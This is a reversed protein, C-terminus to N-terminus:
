YNPRNRFSGVNLGNKMATSLLDIAVFENVVTKIGIIRAVTECDENRVGILWAFPIFCWGIIVELSLGTVGVLEGFFTLLGNFFSIASLYAILIATISLVINTADMAGQTAAELVSKNTERCYLYTPDM